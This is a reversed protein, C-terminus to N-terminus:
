IKDQYFKCLLPPLWLDIAKIQNWFSGRRLRFTVFTQKLVNCIYVTGAVFDICPWRSAAEDDLLQFILGVEVPLLV